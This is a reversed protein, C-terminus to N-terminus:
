RTNSVVISSFFAPSTGVFLPISFCHMTSALLSCSTLPQLTNSSKHDHTVKPEESKTIHFDGRICVKVIIANAPLPQPRSKAYYAMRSRTGTLASPSGLFVLVLIWCGDEFCAIAEGVGITWSCHLLRSILIIHEKRTDLLNWYSQMLTHVHHMPLYALRPMRMEGAQALWTVSSLVDELKLTV